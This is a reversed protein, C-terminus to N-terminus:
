CRRRRALLRARVAGDLARGLVTAISAIGRRATPWSMRCRASPTRRSAGCRSRSRAARPAAPTWAAGALVLGYVAPRSSTSAAPSRTSRVAGGQLRLPPACYVVVFFLSVALVLWSAPSGVLSSTRRRVAPVLLAAAVLTLRHLRETSCRATSAARARTAAPRVRLRLRRQHRVDRPQVARPLVAHRHRVDLDVERTTLLYAAAFPYATNIWSVPRSASSCSGAVVAAGRTLAATARRRASRPACLVAPVLFAPACRTRSTRSRRSASARARQPAADSYAFLGAAIMLTTSSPPSCSSCSRPSRASAAMGAGSGPASRASRAVVAAIASSSRGVLLPYTM